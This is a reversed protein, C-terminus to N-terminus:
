GLSATASGSQLWSLSPLRHKSFAMQQLPSATRGACVAHRDAVCNAASACAQHGAAYEGAMVVGRVLIVACVLEAKSEGPGLGAALPREAGSSRAAAPPWDWGAGAPTKFCSPTAPLWRTASALPMLTAPM